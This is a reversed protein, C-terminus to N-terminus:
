CSPAEFSTVKRATLQTPVNFPSYCSCVLHMSSVYVEEEEEEEEVEEDEDYDDYSCDEDDNDDDEEEIKTTHLLTRCLFFRVSGWQGPM